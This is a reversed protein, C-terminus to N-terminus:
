DNQTKKDPRQGKSHAHWLISPGRPLLGSLSFPNQSCKQELGVGFISWRPNQPVDESYLFFPLVSQLAQM